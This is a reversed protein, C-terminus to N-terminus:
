KDALEFFIINTYKQDNTLFVPDKIKISEDLDSIVPVYNFDNTLFDISHSDPQEFEFDWTWVKHVGSYSSGFNLNKMHIKECIPSQKITPNARLSITQLTTYFNQQQKQERPDDGRRAGTETIDILTQLRFIM